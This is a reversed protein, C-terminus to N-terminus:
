AETATHDCSREQPCAPVLGNSLSIRGWLTLAPRLQLSRLLSPNPFLGMQSLIKSPPEAQCASPKSVSLTSAPLPHFSSVFSPHKIARPHSCLTRSSSVPFALSAMKVEGTCICVCWWCWVSEGWYALYCWRTHSPAMVGLGMWSHWGHGLSWWM